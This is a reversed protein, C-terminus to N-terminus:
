RTKLILEALQLDFPTTIKINTTEGPVFNLAHGAAEMVTAEDTFKPRYEQKYAQRLLKLQFTQPTQVAKIQDRNLVKSGSEDVIRLSDHISTVPIASGKEEAATCCLRILEPSVLCRAADHVFVITDDGVMANLGNQVSHFRTAGGGTVMVKSSEAFTQKHQKLYEDPLVLMFRMDDYAQDFADIAHQLLTKGAIEMFQKPPEKGMRSGSGGAAILAYRHM